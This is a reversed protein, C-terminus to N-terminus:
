RKTFTSQVDDNHCKLCGKFSAHHTPSRSSNNDPDHCEFCQTKQNVGEHVDPYLKISPGHLGLYPRYACAIATILFVVLFFIKFLSKM